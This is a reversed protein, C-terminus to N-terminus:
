TLHGKRFENIKGILVFGDLGLKEVPVGLEKLNALIDELYCIAGLLYDYQFDIKSQLPALEWLKRFIRRAQPLPTKIRIGGTEREEIDLDLCPYSERIERPLDGVFMEIQSMPPNGGRPYVQSWNPM